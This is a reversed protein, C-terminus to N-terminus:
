RTTDAPTGVQPDVSLASPSLLQRPAEIPIALPLDHPAIIELLLEDQMQRHWGIDGGRDLLAFAIVGTDQTNIIGALSAMGGDIETPLTGTKALAAGDLPTGELRRRLTGYDDSMVPMVDELKLGHRTVEDSLARIVKLVGRPTLLNSQRGSAMTIRVQDDPINLEQILFQRVGEPGGSLGALRDAVFNNSHSNMYLLVNSLPYSRFVFLPSGAGAPAAGVKAQRETQGLKMVRALRQASEEPSESYNFCFDPTVVVDGNIKNIGRARLERAIMGAAVDGFTPDGGAAYINGNLVGASDIKGNVFIRTEFRHGAGLKRLSVLSTALKLLSAPNFGTDANHSAFTRRGDLTEILFGHGEPEEGRVALWVAADLTPPPAVSPSPLAAAARALSTEVVAGPEARSLPAFSFPLYVFVAIVILGTCCVVLLPVRANLRSGEMIKSLKNVDKSFARSAKIHQFTPPADLASERMWFVGM